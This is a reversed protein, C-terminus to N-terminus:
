GRFWRKFRWWWESDREEVARGRWRKEYSISRPTVFFLLYALVLLVLGVWVLVGKWFAGVLLLVLGALLIKGPSLAPWRWVSGRSPRHAPHLPQALDVPRKEAERAHPAPADEGTRRLIEEIEEKYKEPMDGGRLPDETTYPIVQTLRGNYLVIFPNPFRPRRGTAPIRSM